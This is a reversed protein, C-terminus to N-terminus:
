YKLEKELIEEIRDYDWYWIELFNINNNQAYEKKRRDHELQKEFDKKSKHFGKIYREHQEGQYEILLNFKPIYFDYSLPKNGVGILGDFSKQYIYNIIKNILYNSISEEGKSYDCEPCRFDLKNSSNIDRYFDKHKGEPCKWYTYKNSHPSYEYPSKKNKNSWLDLVKPYLYGLSNCMNCNISGEYGKIFHSINKLESKHIGIPCKFYYKKRSDSHAVESPKKNNLEYDWRNLIDQRNNDICWEKFSKINKLRVCKECYYSGNKNINRKYNQWTINKIEKECCDCQVDVLVNSGNTLDDIKVVIKTRKPIRLIGNVDKHKPIVYGLNEFHKINRGGLVVEVMKTLLGM